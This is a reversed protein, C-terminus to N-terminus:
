GAFCRAYPPNHVSDPGQITANRTGSNTLHSEWVHAPCSSPSGRSGWLLAGANGPQGARPAGRRGGDDEAGVVPGLRAQAPRHAHDGLHVDLESQRADDPDPSRLVDALRDIRHQDFTLEGSPERLPKAAKAPM